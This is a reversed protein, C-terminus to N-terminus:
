DLHLDYLDAAADWVQDRDTVDVHLRVIGPTEPRGRTVDKLGRLIPKVVALDEDALPLFRQVMQMYDVDALDDEEFFGRDYLHILREDISVLNRFVWQIYDTDTFRVARGTLAKALKRRTSLALLRQYVFEPDPLSGLFDPFRTLMKIVVPSVIETYVACLYYAFSRRKNVPLSTAFAHTESYCMMLGRVAGYSNWVIDKYMTDRNRLGPYAIFIFKFDEDKRAAIVAQNESEFCPQVNRLYEPHTKDLKMCMKSARSLVSADKQSLFGVTITTTDDPQKNIKHETM